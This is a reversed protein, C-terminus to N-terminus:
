SAELTKRGLSAISMGHWFRPPPESYIMRSGRYIIQFRSRYLLLGTSSTGLIRTPKNTATFNGLESGLVATPARAVRPRRKKAIIRSAETMRRETEMNKPIDVVEM